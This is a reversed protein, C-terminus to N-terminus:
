YTISTTITTTTEATITAISYYVKTVYSYNNAIFDQTYFGQSADANLGEKVTQRSCNNNKHILNVTFFYLSLSFGNTCLKANWQTAKTCVRLKVCLEIQSSIFARHFAVFRGWCAATAVAAFRLRLLTLLFGRRSRCCCCCRV